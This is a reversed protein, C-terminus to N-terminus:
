DREIAEHYLDKWYDLDEELQSCQSEANALDEELLLVKDKLEELELHEAVTKVLPMTGSKYVPRLKILASLKQTPMTEFMVIGDNSVYLNYKTGYIDVDGRVFKFNDSARSRWIQEPYSAYTGEPGDRLIITRSTANDCHIYVDWQAISGYYICKDCDHEHVNYPTIM